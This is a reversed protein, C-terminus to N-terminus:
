RRSWDRRLEDRVADDPLRDVAADTRERERSARVARQLAEVRELNRGANRVGLLVALVAGVIALWKLASLIADKGFFAIAAAIM